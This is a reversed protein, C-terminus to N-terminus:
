TEVVTTSLGLTGGGPGTGVILVAISIAGVRFVRADPIASGILSVLERYRRAALKEAPGHWGQDLVANRFFYDVTITEVLETGPRGALRRVQEDDLAGFPTGPADVVAFPADRESVFLLGASAAQLDRILASRDTPM